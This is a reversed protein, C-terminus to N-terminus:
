SRLNDLFVAAEKISISRQFGKALPDHHQSAADNHRQKHGGNELYFAKRPLKRKILEHKAALGDFYAHGQSVL